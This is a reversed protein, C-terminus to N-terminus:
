VKKIQKKYQTPSYGTKNKFFRSFAFVDEIGVRKAIETCSFTSKQLFIKAKEIRLNDIYEKLSVNFKEKFIKYLYRTCLNLNNAVELATVGKDLNADVYNLARNLYEIKGRKKKNKQEDLGFVFKVIQSLEYNKYFNDIDGILTNVNQTLKDVDQVHGIGFKEIGFKSLFEFMGDTSFIMWIYDWPNEQNPYYTLKEHPASLYYDGKKLPLGNFYGEGSTIIHLISKDRIGPGWKRNDDRETYGIELVPFEKLEVLNKVGIVM